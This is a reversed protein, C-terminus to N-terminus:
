KDRCIRGSPIQLVKFFVFSSCTLYSLLVFRNISYLCTIVYKSAQGKYANHCFLLPLHEFVIKLITQLMLHAYLMTICLPFMSSIMLGRKFQFFLFANELFANESSLCVRIEHYLPLCDSQLLALSLLRYARM